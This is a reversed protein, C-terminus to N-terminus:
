PELHGSLEVAANMSLNLALVRRMVAGNMTGMADNWRGSFRCMFVGDLLFRHVRAM